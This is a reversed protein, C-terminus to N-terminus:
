HKPARGDGNATLPAQSNPCTGKINLGTLTFIEAAM